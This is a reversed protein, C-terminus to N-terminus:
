GFIRYLLVASCFLFVFVLSSKGGWVEYPGKVKKVYRGVWVILCPLIGFLVMDLFGGAFSLARLFLDPYVLTLIMPPIFTAGYLIPDAQLRPTHRLGDRLFDVFAIACALFPNILAFFSFAGAFFLIDESGAAKQLLGTVMSGHSVVDRLDSSDLSSLLGLIVFNWFFYILFPIFTGVIIAFRAARPDRKVFSVITPVLNQYGFCILLIPVTQLSAGWDMRELVAPKFYPIGVTILALYSLVLGVLLLKALHSVARTGAYAISAVALSFLFVSISQPLQMQFLASFIESVIQGGGSIYAVFLCYFLFLFFAWAILKGFRGLGFSALSVMNVEEKFWLTAEMIFLGMAVAVIYCVIMAVSSPWIGTQASMVPLGLMGAGIACGAVLFTAGWVNSKM